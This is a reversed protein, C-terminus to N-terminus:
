IRNVNDGYRLITYEYFVKNMSHIPQLAGYLSVNYDAILLVPITQLQKGQKGCLTFEQMFVPEFFMGINKAAIGGAIYIGNLALCELVFNKAARAYFRIYMSFTDKCREDRQAYFSIRDPNFDNKEIERTSETVPYEKQTALYRYIKKIGAGSLVDEWSVPAVNYEQKVFENFACEPATHFAADAHGGESSVPFYRRSDRHWVMIGKGLGTGAGLFGINGHPRRVGENITIIDQPNILQYGLAVAEFDNILFITKLGTVKILENTNIEINLNTPRAFVRHPYVIGAAGICSAQFTIGYQQFIYDVVQKFFETFSSIDSSKFHLAILLMPNQVNLAFIGFNSNTGGVDAALFFSGTKDITDVYMVAKTLTLMAGQKRKYPYFHHAESPQFRTLFRNLNNKIGALRNEETGAWYACGAPLFCCLTALAIVSGVLLAVALLPTGKVILVYWIVFPASICMLVLCLLACAARARVFFIDHEFQVCCFSAQERNATQQFQINNRLDDFLNKAVRKLEPQIPIEGLARLANIFSAADHYGLGGKLRRVGYNLRRFGDFTHFLRNPCDSPCTEYRGFFLNKM